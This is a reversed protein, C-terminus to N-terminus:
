QKVRLPDGMRKYCQEINAGMFSARLDDGVGTLLADYHAIPQPNGENHAYDSSFVVCEPHEDLLRLPSQNPTPLPTIRVNRHV